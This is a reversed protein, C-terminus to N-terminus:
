KKRKKPPTYNSRTNGPRAGFDAGCPAIYHKKLIVGQAVKCRSYDKPSAIKCCDCGM